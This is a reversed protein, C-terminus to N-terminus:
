LYYRDKDGDHVKNQDPVTKGCIPGQLYKQTAVIKTTFNLNQEAIQHRSQFVHGVIIAKETSFKHLLPFIYTKVFM